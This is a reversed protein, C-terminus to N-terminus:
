INKIENLLENAIQYDSIRMISENYNLTKFPNIGGYWIIRNDIIIANFALDVHEQFILVNDLNFDITSYIIVKCNCQRIIEKFINEQYDNVILVIEKKAYQLDDLLKKNFNNQGYLKNEQELDNELLQYNLKKYAKLRQNFMNSFMPVKIDVYDFVKVEKKGQYNRHLRGVYQALSGQWKFPMTLFLTNLSPLDFGEGIYKGTAIIVYGDEKINSIDDTIKNKEKAKMQGNILYIKDTFELIKNKLYVIHEIRDSLLLINRKELLAQKIDNVILNNRIENSALINCKEAYSLINEKLTLTFSTFKPILIKEFLQISNEQEYIVNGVIKYIIKENGDSRKITATLGYMYKSNINKIVNEYTLAGGHHVEDIIVLGYQNLIDKSINLDTLSALSAIDIVNTLKKKAGYYLGIDSIELCEKLKQQWQKILNINNVLILTNKKITAIIAAAVITKGFATPAVFIGNDKCLINNVAIQQESRLEYKLKVQIDQGNNRYDNIQYNVHLYNFLSILDDLCGKPLYIFSDDEKFLQYVRPTNYTSQRLRQKEYFQPNSTSGLRMLFKLSATTLYDKPIAIYNKYYLPINEKFDSYKLKINKLINKPLIDLENEAKIIELLSNVDEKTLKKITSLYSIQNPYPKKHDDVFVTKNEKVLSGDLPLAILNGLGNKELYDQSPFFRDFCDFSLNKNNNFTKNLIFDAIKRAIKAKTKEKFFIWVHAGKGSQSIEVVCDIHYKTCNNKFELAAEFFDSKDFDIAVFYCEDELLMPYIGIHAYGKFHNLLVNPKLSAYQKFECNNCKFNCFANGRNECVWYYTKQNNKNYSRIAYVDERGKFYSSFINIKDITTLIKNDERSSNNFNINNKSLLEKLYENEKKLSDNENLLEQYTKEM